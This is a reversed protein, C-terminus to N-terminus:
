VAVSFLDSICHIFDLCHLNRQKYIVITKNMIKYVPTLPLMVPAANVDSTAEGEPVGSKVVLKIDGQKIIISLINKNKQEM